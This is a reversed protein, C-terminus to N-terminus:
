VQVLSPSKYLWARLMSMLKEIQVPKALYDSAGAEICKARDEKMAKATLAIIPINKFGDQQRIREMVEYGDMEPMMIDMLILDVGDNAELKDLCEAGSRAIELTLGKSELVSALAFVNRMDDDVIMITKDHLIAERDYLMHIMKRQVEPLDKEVRHLFLAVEDVLHEASKGDKPIVREAHKDLLTREENTLEKGTFVVVPIREQDDGQRIKGLLELGSIDPLNLDLIICDFSGNEILQLAERGCHALTIKVDDDALLEKTSNAVSENDEVILLNRV